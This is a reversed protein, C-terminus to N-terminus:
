DEKLQVEDKDDKLDSNDNDIYEVSKDEKVVAQDVRYAEQLEASMVGYKSILQRLMTKRGMLDFDQIWFSSGYKNRYAQSYRSAHKEMKARTWYMTKSFGNLMEFYAFYGITPLKEREDDDEVLVFEYEETLKNFKKLEGEKIESVVIRKYMGTKMALNLMGIYGLQFQAVKRNNKNDNYPVLFYHGLSPSPSLGLSEGVLAGSLITSADCEQLAPNVAVASSISAIFNMVRKKDGLTSKIMNQYVESQIAVSFRPKKTQNTLSTNINTM